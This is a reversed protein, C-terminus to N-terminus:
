KPDTSVTHSAAEILSKWINWDSALLSPRGQEDKESLCDKTLSYVTEWEKTGSLVRIARLVIEKRGLRFQKLPDLLPSKLADRLLSFDGRSELMDFYLLTEEETQVGRAPMDKEGSQLAQELLNRNLM